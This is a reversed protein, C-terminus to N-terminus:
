AEIMIDNIVESVGQARWAADVAEVREAWSRVRGSLTIKGGVARVQIQESDVRASRILANQIDASIALSSVTPPTILIQSTVSRVGRVSGAIHEAASRQYFWDVSGSLTVNGDFVLVQLRDAPIIADRDLVARVALTLDEDTSFGLLKPDVTILNHVYRVGRVRFAAHDAAWKSAYTDAIGSLTVRGDKVTAHIESTTVQPDFFLEATVDASITTDAIPEKTTIMLHKKEGVDVRLDLRSTDVAPKKCERLLVDGERVKNM